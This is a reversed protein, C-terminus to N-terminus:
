SWVIIEYNTGNNNTDITLDTFVGPVGVWEGRPLSHYTSGGDLSYLIVDSIANANPGSRPNYISAWRIPRANTPTITNPIGATVVSSVFSEPDSDKSNEIEIDFDNFDAM